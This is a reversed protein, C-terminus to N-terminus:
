KRRYEKIKGTSINAIIQRGDRTKAAARLASLEDGHAHIHIPAHGGGGAGAAIPSLAPGNKYGEHLADLNSAGIAKVAPASFIYEGGHFIGRPQSPDGDFYGGDSALAMGQVAGMAALISAPAQLSAAGFSAITALTAAPAWTAAEAAAIPINSVAAATQTAKSSVLMLAQQAVWKVGMDVIATIISGEISQGIRALAQQWTTTRNIMGEIGSSIGGSITSAIGAFVTQTQKGLSGIRTVYDNIGALTGQQFGQPGETKDDEGQLGTMKDSVSTHLARLKEADAGSATKAVSDILDLLEQYKQAEAILLVRRQEWKQAASLTYDQDVAKRQVELAKVQEDTARQSDAIAKNLAFTTAAEKSVEDFQSQTLLNQHLADTAERMTATYKDLPGEAATVEATAKSQAATLQTLEDKQLATVKDAQADYSKDAKGRAASGMPEADRAAKLVNLKETEEAIEADLIAKKAAWKAAFTATGDGSVAAEQIKLALMKAAHQEESSMASAKQAAEAAYATRSEAALPTDHPAPKPAAAEKAAQAQLEAIRKQFLAIYQEANKSEFANAIEEIPNIIGQGFGKAENKGATAQLSALQDQYKKLEATAYALQDAVSAAGGIGLLSAGAALGEVAINKLSVLWNGGAIVARNVTALYEKDIISSTDHIGSGLEKIVEILKPMNRTGLIENAADYALTQDKANVVQVAIAEFAADLPASALVKASLGLKGFALDMKGGDEAASDLSGHLKSLATTMQDMNLGSARAMNNLHQFADTSIELRDSLNVINKAFGATEEALRAIGAISLGVGLGSLAQKAINATSTLTTLGANAANFGSVDGTSVIQITLKSNSDSM